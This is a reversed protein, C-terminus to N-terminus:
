SPSTADAPLFRAAPAPAAGIACKAPPEARRDPSCPTRLLATSSCSSPASGCRFSESAPLPQMRSSM